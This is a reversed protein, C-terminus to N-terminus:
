SPARLRRVEVSPHDPTRVLRIKIDIAIVGDPRVVVPNCDLERVQPIEDALMGIRLLLDELADVDAPASGRYGFLLPSSRLSRVLDAADVDTLPVLRLATDRVLEAGVGGIGFLVLPGFSPDQTVGVITEIGSEVMPQVVVGGLESGLAAAMQEYARRVAGADDLGLAVGGVDTKHVIAGAGAKLAVPFGLAEAATAAADASDAHALRAVPIGFTRCLDTAVEPDLWVDEAAELAAEVIARARARDIGPLDPVVGEPRRCWEAHSAARSLAVAAAEPFTFCPIARREDASAQLIEPANAQTLFCAVIPKSGATSAASVIARAVDDSDTVLPPVFIVLVADVEPDALVTRLAREYTAATASAILDIPNATAADPSVFGRLEAQTADSLIPV